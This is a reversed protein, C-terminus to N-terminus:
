QQCTIHLDKLIGQRDIESKTVNTVNQMFVEYKKRSLPSDRFLRKYDAKGLNLWDSASMNQIEPNIGFEPTNHPSAKRNWPCAEQCIDCGFVRGEFKSITELDVPKKSEITMYAICKRADITRNDNIARVPCADICATCSGCHDIAISEQNELELDTMLVGIFFFSGIDKNIVLSHKGQWGLGAKVAWPKELLPSSDVYAKGSTGPSIDKIYVLLENLKGMIVEHYNKGYAYRSLVPVGDGGQKKETYYNLGTVILSRVGEFLLNPNIRTEIDRALYAMDANMGTSCWESLVKGNEVLIGPSTIGVLNFGLERAKDRILISIESVRSNM